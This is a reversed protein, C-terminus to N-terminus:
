FPDQEISAPSRLVLEKRIWIDWAWDATFLPVYREALLSRLLYLNKYSNAGTTHTQVVVSDAIKELDLMEKLILYESGECNMYMSFAATPDEKTIREAAVKISVTKVTLTNEKRLHNPIERGTISLLSADESLDLSMTQGNYIGENFVTAIVSGKTTENILNFYEPVPEYVHIKSITPIRELFLKSSNGKFGGVIILNKAYIKKSWILWDRKVERNWIKKGRFHDILYDVDFDNGSRGMQFEQLDRLTRKVSFSIYNILLGVSISKTM